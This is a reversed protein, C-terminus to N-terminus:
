FLLKSFEKFIFALAISDAKDLIYLKEINNNKFFLM